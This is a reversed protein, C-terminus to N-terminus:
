CGCGGCTGGALSVAAASFQSFGASTHAKRVVTNYPRSIADIKAGFWEVLEADSPTAEPSLVRAAKSTYTSPILTVNGVAWSSSHRGRDSNNRTCRHAEVAVLMGIEPRYVERTQVDPEFGNQFILNGPGYIIVGGKYLEIPQIHHSSTGWVVSAGADIM